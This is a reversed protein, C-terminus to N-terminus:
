IRETYTGQDESWPLRVIKDGSWLLPLQLQFFLLDRYVLCLGSSYAPVFLLCTQNTLGRQEWLAVCSSRLDNWECLRLCSKDSSLWILGMNQEHESSPCSWSHKPHQCNLTRGTIFSYPPKHRMGWCGMQRSRFGPCERSFESGRSERERMREKRIKNRLFFFDQLVGLVKHM